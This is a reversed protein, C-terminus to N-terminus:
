SNHHNRDLYLKTHKLGPTNILVIAPCHGQGASLFFMHFFYQARNHNGSNQERQEARRCKRCICRRKFYGCHVCIRAVGGVHGYREFVIGTDCGDLELHAVAINERQCIHGIVISGDATGCCGRLRRTTLIFVGDSQAPYAGDFTIEFCIGDERSEGELDRIICFRSALRVYADGVVGIVNVVRLLVVDSKRHLRAGDGHIGLLAGVRALGGNSRLVRGALLLAPILVVLAVVASLKESGVTRSRDVLHGKAGESVVCSSCRGTLSLGYTSVATIRVPREAAMTISRFRLACLCHLKGAVAHIQRFVVIAARDAAGALIVVCVGERRSTQLRVAEGRGVGVCLIELRRCVTNGHCFVVLAARDAACLTRICEAVTRDVGGIMLSVCGDHRLRGARITTVCRVGAGATVAILVALGIRETM